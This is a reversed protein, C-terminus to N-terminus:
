QFVRVYDVVMRQPFASTQDPSGPWQGGVAVNFILFFEKKLESLEEPTIDIVNFAEKDDIYWSISSEDWVISFVHFEDAFIGSELTTSNGYMARNGNADAWHATGHIINDGKGEEDGGVMEMIDIEGSAPWPETDINTGLMWLAPWIGQGKPLAARIDIRGYQFSQKGKTIIRSSTYDQGEFVEEKATIILYGDEVSTNEERYYQLEQNGWGDTGTGIEFTWDELNLAEGEFEDQWVLSMGEYTEPSTYGTAPILGDEDDELDISIDNSVEMFEADTAHARIRISYTGSSSYTHEATGNDSRIFTSETDGFNITYYNTKDSSANVTVVGPKEANAEVNVELNSPLTLKQPQDDESCSILTIILIIVGLYKNKM